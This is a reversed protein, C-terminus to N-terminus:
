FDEMTVYGGAAQKNIWDLMALRRSSNNGAFKSSLRSGDGSFVSLSSSNYSSRRLSASERDQILNMEHELWETCGVLDRKFKKRSVSKPLLACSPPAVDVYALLVEIAQSFSDAFAYEDEELMRIAIKAACEVDGVLLKYRMLVTEVEQLRGLVTVDQFLKPNCARRKHESQLLQFNENLREELDWDAPYNHELMQDDPYGMELLINHGRSRILNVAFLKEARNVRNFGIDAGYEVIEYDMDRSIELDRIGLAEIEDSQDHDDKISLLFLARNFYRNSLHQMFDLCNPTWGETEYFEDYAKEGLQIADHYYGTGKSIIDKKTLKLIKNETLNEAVMERYMVLLTNGLNNSAVAVAKKNDLRKFLKLADKLVKYAMELEGSYFFENAARVVKYLVIVTDSVNALELSGMMSHKIRPPGGGTFDTRCFRFIQLVFIAPM